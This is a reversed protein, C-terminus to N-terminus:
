VTPLLIVFEAGEGERNNVKLEGKHAKIIDYSMSLGLGTGQGAPKTTFFPQFIKDIVKQPIGNGNDKISITVRDGVRKTSVSVTPEYNEPQHKKKENVVYFANNYLNLLVRGIDQQNINIKGIAPDFDTEMNANFSKDKARLGHYSLRLYEEALANIEVPEMQGTSVRSHQLMSKVIAEARHGHYKIKVENDRISSMLEKAETFNGTDIAETIEDILETNVDSFNNVFNLPNQIEHAIGATLEGLSAMKESQILQSQTSKLEALTVEAKEKEVKLERTRLAVREELVSNEKLLQKSRYNIIGVIVSLGLLGFLTYAWWTQWWPPMISFSFASATAWEGDKGRGSVKFIYDGPPLNLYNQSFTNNTIDSWKKDAGELIFQYETTDQSGLSVQVFHFQLYNNDYPLQLNVPLNYPRTVSDWKANTPFSHTIDSPLKSKFYFSDKKATWITDNDHIDPWAKDSFYQPQNFIDFGTIYVPPIMKKYSSNNMITLGMDGWIFDGKKSIYDSEITRALKRLGEANGFSEVRWNKQTSGDQPYIVSLGNRTGAYIRGAYQNLSLIENNILGQRVSIGFVSDRKANVISIGLETGIWINGTEDPLLEMNTVFATEKVNLLYKITKNVPDIIGVAGSNFAIWIMGQKDAKFDSIGPIQKTRRPIDIHEITGKKEDLLDFGNFGNNNGVWIRGNVDLIFNAVLDNTFGQKRGYYRITKRASDIIDLGGNSCIFIEGNKENIYESSDNALGYKTTFTTVLGTARNLIDIGKAFTGIWTLGRSDTVLSSTESKGIHEINNGDKNFMNLGELTGAWVQGLNDETISEVDANSLGGSIRINKFREKEPDIIFVGRGPVGLGFTEMWINGKKDEMIGWIMVNRLNSDRYFQTASLNQPDVMNIEANMGALWIRKKRDALVSSITNTNLGSSKGLNKITYNKVNIIDVGGRLNGIWINNQRDVTIGSVNDSCLGNDKGLHRILLSDMDIINVGNLTRRSAETIWYRGQADIAMRGVANSALGEPISVQKFIGARTDLILIGNGQTGIWIKGKSDELMSYVSPVLPGSIILSITEGDYRYLGHDNAIWLLGARDKFTCTIHTGMLPDGFEYALGLASSVVRPHITKILKPQELLQINFKLPKTPLAYLNFHRTPLSDFDFHVTQPPNSFELFGSSDYVSKPLKDFAFKKILPKVGVAKETWDLKKEESFQAPKGSPTFGSEENPFPIEVVKNKCAGTWLLFVGVLLIKAIAHTRRPMGLNLPKASEIIM